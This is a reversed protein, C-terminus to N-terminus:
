RLAPWLHGEDMPCAYFRGQWAHGGTTHAANWYAAYRGHRTAVTLTNRVTPREGSESGEILEPRLRPVQRVEFPPLEAHETDSQGSTMTM